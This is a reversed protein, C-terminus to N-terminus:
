LARVRTVSEINKIKNITEQCIESDLDIMTYAWDGKNKNFLNAVNLKENEALINLIRQLMRPINRHMVTIRQASYCVGLDCDPFNVSNKINGNEMFDMLENVVMVAANEESEYTSAGIHPLNVTNKMNLTEREPFDVIYKKVKGSELAEAIAKNDVLGNRALNFVTIGDKMKYILDKGILNETDDTLPVHISLFDSNMVLEEMSEPIELDKNLHIADRVSLYPDIGIVKMGLAAGADIAIKGINGLGIVGLTKGKIENGVFQKKGNEVDKTIDESDLLKETWKHAEVINRSSLIMSAILLERVANANAGPANCVLIGNESCREVPINNYGAGARGIYKLNPSFEMDHLKASRVIIADPDDINDSISYNEPLLELGKESINNITLVKYNKM